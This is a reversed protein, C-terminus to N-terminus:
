RICQGFDFSNNLCILAIYNLIISYKLATSTMSISMLLINLFQIQVCRSGSLDNNGYRNYGNTEKRQEM